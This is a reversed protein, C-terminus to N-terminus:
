LNPDGIIYYYIYATYATGYSDANFRINTSDSACYFGEGNTLGYSDPPFSMSSDSLQCFSLFAPTFSLGHAITVSGGGSTPVSISTTGQAVIKFSNYSSNFIQDKVGATLIDYGPKSIKLGYDAM